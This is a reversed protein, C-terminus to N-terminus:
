EGCSHDDHVPGRELFLWSLGGLSSVIAAVLALVWWSDAGCTGVVQYACTAGVGGAAGMIFFFASFIAAAGALNRAWAGELQETRELAWFIFPYTFPSACLLMFAWAGAAALVLQWASDFGEVAANQACAAGDCGFIDNASSWYLPLFPLLALSLPMRSAGTGVKSVVVRKFDRRVMAEFAEIPDAHSGFLKAIHAEVHGRDSEVACHCASLKFEDLQGLMRRHAQAKARFAVLNPVISPAYGFGMAIAAAPVTGFTGFAANWAAIPPLVGNGPMLLQVLFGCGIDVVITSLVWPALWLPQVDVAHPRHTSLFTAMECACWLRSFYSESWLLVLRDSSQVFTPLMQVGALKWAERTQHICLKDLWWQEERGLGLPALASMVAHGFFFTAFFVTSPAGLFAFKLWAIGGLATVDWAHTGVLTLVIAAWTAWSALVARGLNTRYCLALYKLLASDAWTHSLFADPRTSPATAFYVADSAAHRTEDGLLLQELDHPAVTAGTVKDTTYQYQERFVTGFGHLVHGCAATRFLAAASPEADADISLSGRGLPPVAMLEVPASLGGRGLAAVVARVEQSTKLM